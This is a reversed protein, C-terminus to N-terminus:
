RQEEDSLEIAFLARHAAHREPWDHPARLNPSGGQFPNAMARLVDTSPTFTSGCYTDLSSNVSQMYMFTKM